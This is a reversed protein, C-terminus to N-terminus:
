QTMGAMQGNKEAEGSSGGLLTNITNAEQGQPTKGSVNERVYNRTTEAPRAPQGPGPTGTEAPPEGITVFDMIEPMQRLESRKSLYANIDFQVGQAQLLQMMPLLIQMVMQDIEQAKSQPTQEQLSYPDVKIRLDSWKVRQRQEPTVRRRLAMDALGPLPLETEMTRFPDHWWYWCLGRLVSAAFKVTVGQMDQVGLGANQNLLRDQTATKAQPGMGGLLSLSGGQEDFIKKAEMFMALNVQSPGGYSVEKPPEGDCRFAFGDDASALRAMDQDSAGPVPLVSKQRLSQDMLKRYVQNAFLHLDYLNMVPSLPMANGPVFRFGLYHYPGDDPGVWEQERLPERDKAPLGGGGDEAELTLILKQRPLWVEWLDVMDEIEEQNGKYGRGLMKIREDGEQNFFADRSAVLDKRGKGYLNSDRISSLTRRFRHAVFGAESFRKAHSDFCFDDLDIDEVFPKGAQLNWGSVHSDAPTALAVKCIGISMLAASVCRSLVLDLGMDEIEQNCWSQMAAVAAKNERQFTSLLVRPNDSILTRSTIGVYRDILNVPVSKPNGNEAWNRGVQQRVFERLNARFRELSWRSTKMAQTLRNLDVVHKRARAM